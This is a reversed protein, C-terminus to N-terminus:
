ARRSAQRFLGMMAACPPPGGPSLGLKRGALLVSCRTKNPLTRREVAAGLARAELRLRGREARGWTRWELIVTLGAALLQKALTWQLKEVRARAPEHRLNLALRHMRDDPRLRIAQLSAALATAM